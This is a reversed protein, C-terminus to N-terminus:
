RAVGAVAVDPRPAAGAAPLRLRVTTGSGPRSEVTLEGSLEAAREHMGALGAGGARSAVAGSGDDAVELLLASGDHSLSIRGRSAGAHRVVNTVAEQAVRFAAVEVAASLPPLEPPADMAIGGPLHRGLRDALEAVAEVLGLQDLGPPTLGDVVRRVDVVAAQIGSRIHRLSEEAADVDSRLLNGTAEVLFTLGALRSGLGDHLDRRLRRREDERALVLREQAARLGAVLGAAHVLAGLHGAIDSLLQRDRARLARPPPSWRLIGVPRGYATLPTEEKGDGQESGHAALLQGDADLVAIRALGLGDGLEVVLDRLLGHADGADAVRRRVDALVAEPQAWLGYTLRNAARQLAERLPAFSLAVVGTALWPLWRAGQAQLLAGVGAVVLVYVVALAASLAVSAITRNAVLQVDYLRHQLVAVAIAIPLPLVALAFLLPAAVNTPVIPLLLVPVAAALTFWLLQQRVLRSGKRWRAVLSGVAGVLAIAALGLSLAALGDVLASAWAPPALPNSVTMLRNDLPHATLLTAAAFGVVAATAVPAAWRWPAAPLIGDPFVLPVGLVLVLWGAGRLFTGLIGLWAVAPVSGPETGLGQVALALATEGVAWAAAGGLMLRGVRHGPRALAIVLGVAAYATIALAIATEGQPLGDGRASALTLPVVAGALAVLAVVVPAVRGSVTM